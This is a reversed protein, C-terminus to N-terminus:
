GARVAGDAHAHAHAHAALELLYRGYDTKAM